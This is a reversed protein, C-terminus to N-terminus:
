AEAEKAAKEAGEDGRGSVKQTLAMPVSTGSLSERNFGAVGSPRSTPSTRTKTGVDNEPDLRHLYGPFRAFVHDRSLCPNSDALLELSLRLGADTAEM